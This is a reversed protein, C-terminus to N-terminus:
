AALSLHLSPNPLSFSVDFNIDGFRIHSLRHGNSSVNLVRPAEAKLIKDMILNTFLFHGLHNAAFQLEYGDESLQYPVAMIGACNHVVDIHEVDSWESSLVEDAARRVSKQSSLDILLKRTPVSPHKAAINAAEQDLKAANRGALILLAPQAAAVAEVYAAGVSGPTVGTTLITKGKIISAYDAVLDSAPTGEPYKSAM